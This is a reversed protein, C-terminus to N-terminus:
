PHIIASRFVNIRPETQFFGPFLQQYCSGDSNVMVLDDGAVVLWDNDKTVTLIDKHWTGNTIQKAQGSLINIKYIQYAYDECYPNGSNDIALNTSFALTENDNLWAMSNIDSPTEILPRILGQSTEIEINNSYGASCDFGTSYSIKTGDPSVAKRGFKADLDPEPAFEIIENEIERVGSNENWSKVRTEGRYSEEFYLNQENWFMQSITTNAGSLIRLDGTGLNLVFLRYDYDAVDMQFALWNQLSFCAQRDQITSINSLVIENSQTNLIINEIPEIAVNEADLWKAVFYQYKLPYVIKTAISSRYTSSKDGFDYHIIPRLTYIGPQELFMRIRIRERERPELYVYDLENNEVIEASVTKAKGVEIDKTTWEPVEYNRIVGGGLGRSKMLIESIEPPEQRIIEIDISQIGIRYKEATSQADFELSIWGDLTATITGDPNTYEDKSISSINRAFYDHSSGFKEILAKQDHLYFPHYPRLPEISATSVGIWYLFIGTCTAVLVGGFIGWFHKSKGKITKSQFDNEWEEAKELGSITPVFLIVKNGPPSEDRLYGENLYLAIYDKLKEVEINEKKAIYALSIPSINGQRKFLTIINIFM